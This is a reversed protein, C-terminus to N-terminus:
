PAPPPEQNTPTGALHRFFAVARNIGSDTHGDTLPSAGTGIRTLDYYLWVDDAQHELIYVSQLDGPHFLPVLLFRITSANETEIVVRTSTRSLTRMRYIVRGSGTDAQSFSLLNGPSFEAASFDTRTEGANPQVAHAETILTRWRKETVSWYQIGSTRSVAGFRTLLADM